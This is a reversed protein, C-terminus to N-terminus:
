SHSKTINKLQQAAAMVALSTLQNSRKHQTTVDAAMVSMNISGNQYNKRVQEFVHQKETYQGRDWVAPQKAEAVRSGLSSLGSLDGSQLQKEIERDRKRKNTKSNDIYESQVSRSEIAIDLSSVISNAPVPKSDGEVVLGIHQATQLPNPMKVTPPLSNIVKIEAADSFTFLDNLDEEVPESHLGGHGLNSKLAAECTKRIESQLHPEHVTHENSSNMSTTWSSPCNPLVWKNSKLTSASTATHQAGRSFDSTTNNIGDFAVAQKPKPLSALLSIGRHESSKNENRPQTSHERLIRQKDEIVNDRDSDDDSDASSVGRTLAVQISEPLRSFILSKNTTENSNPKAQSTKFVKRESESDESDSKYSALSQM